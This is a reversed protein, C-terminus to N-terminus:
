SKRGLLYGFYRNFIWVIPIEAVCVLVAVGLNFVAQPLPIRNDIFFMGLSVYYVVFFTAHTCMIVLSNKGLWALFRCPPLARLLGLLGTCSLFAALYHLPEVYLYHLDFVPFLLALLAGPALLLSLGLCALRGRRKKGPAERGDAGGSQFCRQELAGLYWGMLLFPMALIGRLLTIVLDLGAYGALSLDMAVYSDLRFGVTVASAAVTLILVAANRLAPRLCRELLLFLAGAIFYAPLFWLIHIGYGTVADVYQRALQSSTLSGSDLLYGLTNMTLLMVTFSAYPILTGRAKGALASFFPRGEDRKVYALIGGIVFFLPMHFSSIWKLTDEQIYEIHGLVVLFIGVGKAMDLYTLRKQPM